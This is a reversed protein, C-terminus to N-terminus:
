VVPYPRGMQQHQRRFSGTPASRRERVQWHTHGGFAKSIYHIIRLPMYIAGPLESSPHEPGKRWDTQQISLSADFSSALPPAQRGPRWVTVVSHILFVAVAAQGALVV